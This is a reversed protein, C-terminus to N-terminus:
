KIEMLHREIKQRVESPPNMQLAKELVDLARGTDGMKQLTVGMMFRSDHVKNGQPHQNLVMEFHTMAEDYRGLQYYNNGLWFIINDKLDEPPNKLRYEQFLMISEDYNSNRYANLATTYEQPPKYATTKKMTAPGKRPAMKTQQMAAGEKLNHIEGALTNIHQKLTEIEPVLNVTQQAAMNLNAELREQTATLRPEMDQLVTQLEKVRQILAEQQSQLIQIDVKMEEVDTKQDISDFGANTGAEPAETMVATGTGSKTTDDMFADLNEETAGAEDGFFGAEQEGATEMQQSEVPQQSGIEQTEPSEGFFSKEEESLTSSAGEGSDTFLQNEDQPNASANEMQSDLEQEFEQELALEDETKKNWPMSQCGSLLFAATLTLIGILRPTILINPM